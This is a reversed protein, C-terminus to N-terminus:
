ALKGGHRYGRGANYNVKEIIMTELDIDWEDALDLARIVIDALASPVGEPKPQNDPYYTEDPAHGTRLEEIAGAVETTILALRAIQRQVRQEHPQYATGATRWGNATNVEGIRQQLEAITPTKITM